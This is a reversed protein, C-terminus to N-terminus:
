PEWLSVSAKAHKKKFEVIKLNKCSKCLPQLNKWLVLDAIGKIVEIMKLRSYKRIQEGWQVLQDVRRNGKEGM